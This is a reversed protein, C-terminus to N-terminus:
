MFNFSFNLVKKIRQSLEFYGNIPHLLTVMLGDDCFTAVGPSNRRRKQTCFLFGERAFKHNQVILIFHGQSKM